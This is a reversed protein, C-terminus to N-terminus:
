EDYPESTMMNPPFSSLMSATFIHLLRVNEKNVDSRNVATYLLTTKLSDLIVPFTGFVLFFELGFRCNSSRFSAAIFLLFM